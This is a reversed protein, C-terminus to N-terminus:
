KFTSKTYQEVLILKADKTKIIKLHFNLKEMFYIKPINVKIIHEMNFSKSVLDM